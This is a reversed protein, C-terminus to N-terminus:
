IVESVIGLMIDEEVGESLFVSSFRGDKVWYALNRLSGNGKVTVTVGSIDATKIVSYEEYVGSIDEETKGVRFCCNEENAGYYNVEAFQDFLVCYTKETVNFPVGTVEKLQVGFAESLESISGYEDCKWVGATDGETTTETESGTDPASTVDPVSTVTVDPASTVEPESVESVASTVAPSSDTGPKQGGSDPSIRSRSLMALAGVAVAVCAAASALKLVTNMRKRSQRANLNGIVRERMEDTLEIHEIIEKYKSV